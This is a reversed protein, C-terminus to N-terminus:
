NIERIRSKKMVFEFDSMVFARFDSVVLFVFERERGSGPTARAASSVSLFIISPANECFTM